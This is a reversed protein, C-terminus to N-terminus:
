RLIENIARDFIEVRRKARKVDPHEKNYTRSLRALDTELAAQRVMLKGLALTLKGAEGPKVALVRGMTRELVGIEFRLDLIKPNADTYDALFSELDALIDTKRLLIESYAPSSVIAGTGAAPLKQGFCLAPLAVLFSLIISRM